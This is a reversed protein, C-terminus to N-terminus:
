LGTSNPSPRVSVGCHGGGSPRHVGASLHGHPDDRFGGRGALRQHHATLFVDVFHRVAEPHRSFDAPMLELASDGGLAMYVRSREPSNGETEYPDILLYANSRAPAHYMAYYVNGVAM